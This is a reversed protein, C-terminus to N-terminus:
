GTMSYDETPPYGSYSGPVEMKGILDDIRPNQLISEYFALQSLSQTSKSSGDSAFVPDMKGPQSDITHMSSSLEQNKFCSDDARLMSNPQSQFVEPKTKKDKPSEADTEVESEGNNQTNNLQKRKSRARRNQFWNYVNTESIQGHQSLEATIEKIKQKSPTGTGQDFIRELIQLQVPTPTWRQRATIKHGVASVLPDCYLNGLRVGALDQQATIAKHMEVLQECITAYVAIQTRLIELQEDTMVKVYLVGNIGGNNSGDILGNGNGNGNEHLQQLSQPIQQPEMMKM